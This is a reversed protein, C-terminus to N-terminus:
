CSTSSRVRPTSYGLDPGRRIAKRVVRSRKTNLLVETIWYELSIVIVAPVGAKDLFKYQKTATKLYQAHKELPVVVVVKDFHPRFDVKKWWAYFKDVISDSEGDWDPVIFDNFARDEKSIRKPELFINNFVSIEVSRLYDLCSQLVAEWLSALIQKVQHQAETGEKPVHKITRVRVEKHNVRTNRLFTNVGLVQILTMEMKLAQERTLNRHVVDIQIRDYETELINAHSHAKLDLAREFKNGDETGIGVYIPLGSIRYTYIYCLENNSM